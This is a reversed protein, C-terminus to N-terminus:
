SPFAPTARANHPRLARGDLTRPAGSHASLVSRCPLLPFARAASLARATGRAGKEGRLIYFVADADSPPTTCRTCNEHKSDLCRPGFTTDGSGSAGAGSGRDTAHADDDDDYRPPLPPPLADHEDDRLLLRAHPPAGGAVAGGGGGGCAEEVAGFLIRVFDLDSRAGGCAGHPLLSAGAGDAVVGSEWAFSAPPPSWDHPLATGQGALWESGPPWDVLGHM